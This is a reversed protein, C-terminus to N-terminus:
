TGVGFLGVATPSAPDDSAIVLFASRGGPTTPMFAVQVSCTAGVSLTVNACNTLRGAVVLFDAPSGGSQSLAGIHLLGSGANGVTITMAKSQRGVRVNGFFLSPPNPVLHGALGTGRLPVAQVGLTDTVVLADTWTGPGTPRFGLQVVCSAGPALTTGMCGDTGVGFGQGATQIQDSTVALSAGGTNTLTVSAAVTASNVQVSGFDVATPSFTATPLAPGAEYAGLDVAPGVVRPNGALDTAPLYPASSNGADIAPSGAQVHFNGLGVFLPDASINGRTGAVAGCTPDFGAAGGPAFADNHDFVPTASLSNGCYVADQGAVGVLINNFFRSTSDYGGAWVASGDGTASNGALTNNVLQPGLTGAPPLFWIGAGSGGSRNNVILNQILVADSQSESWIAGGDSTSSNGSMVNDEITPTGAAFMALAGGWYGHNGSITNGIVQPSVGAPAGGELWIGGGSGGSCGDDSAGNNTIVNNQILPAGSAFIGGGDTCASNGTIVNGAITPSAYVSIGAGGGAGILRGNRITFGQLVSSRGEQRIFSVVPGAAGGDIITLGPGRSSKVTIAKGLFDIREQYTGPAVLVTDGSAAAAIAAQITAVDAPVNITSAARGGLPVMTALVAAGAALMLLRRPLRPM